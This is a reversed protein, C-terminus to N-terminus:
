PYTREENPLCVCVRVCSQGLPYRECGWGICRKGEFKTPQLLNMMPGVLTAVKVNKKNSSMGIQAVFQNTPRGDLSIQLVKSLIGYVVM